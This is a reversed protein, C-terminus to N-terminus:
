QSIIPINEPSVKFLVFNLWKWAFRLSSLRILLCSFLENTFEVSALTPKNCHTLVRIPSVSLPLANDPPSFFRNDKAASNSVFGTKSNQSSGVVPNSAYLACCSVVMRTRNAFCPVVIRHVIWWGDLWINEMNWLSNSKASPRTLKMPVGFSAM